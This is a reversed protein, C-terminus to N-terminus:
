FARKGVDKSGWGREVILFTSFLGQFYNEGWLLRANNFATEDAQMINICWFRKIMVFTYIYDALSM